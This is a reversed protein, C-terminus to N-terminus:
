PQGLLQSAFERYKAVLPFLDPSESHFDRPYRLVQARLAWIGGQIPLTPSRAVEAYRAVNQANRYSAQIAVVPAASVFVNPDPLAGPDLGTKKLDGSFPIVDAVTPLNALRICCDLWPCRLKELATYFENLTVNLEGTVESPGATALKTILSFEAGDLVLVNAAADPAGYDRLSEAISSTAKLSDLLNIQVDFSQFLEQLANEVSM